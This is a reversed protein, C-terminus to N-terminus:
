SAEWIEYHKGEIALSWILSGSPPEFHGPGIKM